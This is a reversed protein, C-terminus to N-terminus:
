EKIKVRISNPPIVWCHILRANFTFHVEGPPLLNFAQEKLLSM